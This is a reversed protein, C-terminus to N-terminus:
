SDKLIVKKNNNLSSMNKFSAEKKLNLQEDRAQQVSVKRSPPSSLEAKNLKPPMSQDNGTM